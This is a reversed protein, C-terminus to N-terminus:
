MFDSPYFFAQIKVSHDQVALCFFLNTVQCKLLVLDWKLQDIENTIQVPMTRLLELTYVADEKVIKLYKM